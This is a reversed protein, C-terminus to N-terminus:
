KYDKGLYIELDVGVRETQDMMPVVRQEGDMLKALYLATKLYNERYYITTDIPRESPSNSINVIDLKMGMAEEVTRKQLNGLFVSLQYARKPYGTGNLISIQMLTPKRYQKIIERAEKQASEAAQQKQTELEKLREKTFREQRRRSKAAGDNKNQLEAMVKEYDRLLIRVLTESIPKQVEPKLAKKGEIVLDLNFGADTESIELLNQVMKLNEVPEEAGFTIFDSPMQEPDVLTSPLELTLKNSNPKQRIRIKELEAPNLIGRIQLVYDEGQPTLSISKIISSKAVQAKALTPLLLGLVLLPLFWRQALKLVSAM